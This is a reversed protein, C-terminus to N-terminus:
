KINEYTIFEYGKNDGIKEIRVYSGQGIVLKISYFNNKIKM